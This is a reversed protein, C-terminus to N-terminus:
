RANEEVEELCDSDDEGCSQCANKFYNAIELPEGQKIIEGNCLLAAQDALELMDESHTILLVSTGQERFDNIVKNIKNLAIVDVGSDPEDLIVVEPEMLLISALEIRKREGGSLTEDINRDLYDDPNIGVEELAARLKSESIEFGRGELGLALFKAISVGEFRAPHQWALSVGKQARQETELNIIDEGAFYIHGSDP